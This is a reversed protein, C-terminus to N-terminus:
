KCESATTQEFSRRILHPIRQLLNQTPRVLRTDITRMLVREGICAERQSDLGLIRSQNRARAFDSTRDFYLVKVDQKLNGVVKKTQDSLSFRKNATSDVSWNHRDALWNAIGLVALIVALYLTFYVTYRTQRAKMWELAM